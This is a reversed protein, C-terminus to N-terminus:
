HCCSCRPGHGGIAPKPELSRVAMERGRAMSGHVAPAVLFVQEVRGGCQPCSPRDAAISHTAQFPLGCNTCHYDYTPM